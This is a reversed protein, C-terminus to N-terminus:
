DNNKQILTEAILKSLEYNCPSSVMGFQGVPNVELFVYEAEETLVMDISGSKLHLKKMLQILKKQLDIPLSFPVTRNPKEFNYNRFDVETQQDEQSFIAMSYFKENLYFIRLEFVKALKKQFLTPFFYTPLEEESMEETYCLFEVRRDNDMLEFRASRQLAKSVVKGHKEKFNLFETKSTTILTPPIAIGAMKAAELMELKGPESFRLDSIKSKKSLLQHLEKTLYSLESHLHQQINKALDDEDFGMLEASYNLGLESRRYWFGTLQNTNIREGSPTELVFSAEGQNLELRILNLKISSDLKIWPVEFYDLWKIVDFTSQDSTSSLILVM